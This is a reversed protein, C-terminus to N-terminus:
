NIRLITDVPSVFLNIIQGGVMNIESVSERNDIFVPVEVDNALSLVDIIDLGANIKSATNADSYPVGNILCECCEVEGGNIQREFMKFKVLSFKENIRSEIIDMKAKIFQMMNFESKELNALEQSLTCESAELETIRKNIQESQSKAGLQKNLEAIKATLEAKKSVLSPDSEINPRTILSEELQAVQADIDTIKENNWTAKTVEADVDINPANLKSIESNIQEAENRHRDIESNFYQIDKAAQEIDSKLRDIESKISLGKSKNAEKLRETEANFNREFEARRSLRDSEPLQQKCTPCKCEEENFEFKKENIKTWEDRLSQLTSEHVPIKASAESILKNKDEIALVLKDIGKSASDLRFNLSDLSSKYEYKKAEIETKINHIIVQRQSKLSHIQNQISLKAASENKAAESVDTLSKNVSELESNAFQLEKEIHEFNSSEPLSRKAEDIRAPVLDLDDKIKKKKAAVEKKFEELSKNSNLVNIVDSYDNDPSAISDLILNNDIEGALSTLISRQETWKLRSFYNTNSLLKFLNEDIINNIKAQYESQKLPVDNWYYLTEHGTFVEVSEGRKKTWTEKYIRKLNVETQNVQLIASVEHELKHIPNNDSDLTKINFEKDGNSNKGWLLFNFADVITTKGSGNAGYINTIAQFDIDLSKIGKFNRLSLKKISIKM